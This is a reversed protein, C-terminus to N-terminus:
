SSIGSFFSEHSEEDLSYVYTVNQSGVCEHPANIDCSPHPDRLNMLCNHSPGDRKYTKNAGAGSWCEGYNQLGFVKFGREAAM